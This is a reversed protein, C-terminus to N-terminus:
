VFISIGLSIVSIFLSVIAITTAVKYKRDEDRLTALVSAMYPFNICHRDGGVVMSFFPVKTGNEHAYGYKEELHYYLRGFIIDADVGLDQSIAPIDIPVYIKSSRIGVGEQYNSFAAYYREYIANLVQLDTPTPRM